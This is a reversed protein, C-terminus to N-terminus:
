MYVRKTKYAVSKYSACPQSKHFFYAVSLVDTVGLYFLKFLFLVFHLRSNQPLDFAYFFM